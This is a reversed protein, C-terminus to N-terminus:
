GQNVFFLLVMLGVAVLQLVIRWRMLINGYKRNFEGGRGMASIGLVLVVLVSALAIVLLVTIFTAM